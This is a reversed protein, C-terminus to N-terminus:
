GAEIEELLVIVDAVAHVASSRKRSVDLGLLILRAVTSVVGVHFGAGHVDGCLQEAVPAQFPWWLWAKNFWRWWLSPFFLVGSERTLIPFSHFISDNIKVNRFIM